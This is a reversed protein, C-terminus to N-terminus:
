IFKYIMKVNIDIPNYQIHTLNSIVVLNSKRAYPSLGIMKVCVLVPVRHYILKNFKHLTGRRHSSGQDIPSTLFLRAHHEISRPDLSPTSTHQWFNYLRTRKALSSGQDLSSLIHPFASYDGRQMFATDVAPDPTLRHRGPISGFLICGPVSPWVQALIESM